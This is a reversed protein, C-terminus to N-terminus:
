RIYSYWFSEKGLTIEYLLRLTLVLQEWDESTDEEFCEPHNECITGLIHHVKTDGVTIMLKYPVYLYAERHEIDDTCKVGLLGGDFYAPFEIKPM